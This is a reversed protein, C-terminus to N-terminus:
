SSSISGPAARHVSQLVLADGVKTGLKPQLRDVGGPGRRRLNLGRLLSRDPVEKLVDQPGLGLSSAHPSPLHRCADGAERRDLRQLAVVEREGGTCRALLAEFEGAEGEDLPGFVDHEQSRGPDALHVKRDRETM